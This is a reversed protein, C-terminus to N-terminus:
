GQELYRFLSARAQNQVKRQWWGMWGFLWGIWGFAQASWRHVSFADSHEVILGAEMRVHAKVRNVVKRRQKGYLYSAEWVCTYYGDGVDEPEEMRLSFNTAKQCLMRWMGSVMEKSELLGFVPDYFQIENGYCAAMGGSDLNSFATYFRTITQKNQDM